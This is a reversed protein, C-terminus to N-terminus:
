RQGAAGGLLAHRQDPLGPPGRRQLTTKVVLEAPDLGTAVAPGFPCFTDFGKARVWQPFSADRHLIDAVTVDNACTYGFVHDLAQEERVETCTKGIVIGLEGEFSWRATARRAQPHHRGSRPLLQAVQDPLAARGAGGAQAKRGAGPLQEVLAIVKTPQVPSLLQVEALPHVVDTPLPSDFM